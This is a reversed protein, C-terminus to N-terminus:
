VVTLEFRLHKSSLKAAILLTRQSASTNERKFLTLMIGSIILIAAVLLRNNLAEHLFWFGGLAAFVPVLLQAVSAQIKTILPVVSYWIAYGAGSALTGSLAAYMVNPNHWDLESGPVLYFIVLLPLTLLFNNSTDVIPEKSTTGALNYIGWAVGSIIMLMSGFVNPANVDPLQLYFFGLLALVFGGWENFLLVKHKLLTSIVLTFQVVAFLILAGAAKSLSLYAFSFSLAYVFLSVAPLVSHRELSFRSLSFFKDRVFVLSALFFAGSALRVATYSFADVPESSAMALRCFVSNAAFIILALFTLSITRLSKITNETMNLRM